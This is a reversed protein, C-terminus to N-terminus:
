KKKQANLRCRRRTRSAYRENTAYYERKRKNEKDAFGREGEYRERYRERMYAKRQDPDAYPMTSLYGMNLTNRPNFTHYSEPNVRPRKEWGVSFFALSPISGDSEGPERNVSFFARLFVM